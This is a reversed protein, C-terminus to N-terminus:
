PMMDLPTSNDFANWYAILEGVTIFKEMYINDIIFNKEKEFLLCLEQRKEKNLGLDELLKSDSNIKSIPITTLTQLANIVFNGNASDLCVPYKKAWDEIENRYFEYEEKEQMNLEEVYKKQYDGYQAIIDALSPFSKKNKEAYERLSDFEHELYWKVNHQLFTPYPQRCLGDINNQNKGANILDSLTADIKDMPVNNNVYYVNMLLAIPHRLVLWMEYKNRELDNMMIEIWGDKISLHKIFSWIMTAAESVLGMKQHLFFSRKLSLISVVLNIRVERVLNEPHTELYILQERQFNQLNDNTSIQILKAFWEGLLNSVGLYHTLGLKVAKSPLHLKEKFNIEDEINQLHMKVNDQQYIDLPNYYKDIM